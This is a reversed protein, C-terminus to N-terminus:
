SKTSPALQNLNFQNDGDNSVEIVSLSVSPKHSGLDDASAGRSAVVDVLVARAVKHTWIDKSVVRLETSGIWWNNQGEDNHGQGLSIQWTGDTTEVKFNCYFNLDSPVADDGILAQDAYVHQAQESTTSGFQALFAAAVASQGNRDAQINIQWTTFPPNSVPQSHDGQEVTYVMVTGTQSVGAQIGGIMSVNTIYLGPSTANLYVQNNTPPSSSSDSM